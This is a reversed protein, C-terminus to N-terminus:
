GRVQKIPVPAIKILLHGGSGDQFTRDLKDIDFRCLKDFQGTWGTPDAGGTKTVIGTTYSVSYTGGGSIAITGSVPLVVKNDATIGQTTWRKRMQWHTADIVTLVGEGSAAIYDDPDQLRWTNARGKAAKFFARFEKVLFEKRQQFLIVWSGLDEDRTQDRTEDGSDSTSVITSFEDAGTTDFTLMARNIRMDKFAM